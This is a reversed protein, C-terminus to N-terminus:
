DKISLSYISEQFNLFVWYMDPREEVQRIHLVDVEMGNFLLKNEQSAYLANYADLRSLLIQMQYIESIDLNHM